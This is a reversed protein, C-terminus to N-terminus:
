ITPFERLQLKEPFQNINKTLKGNFEIQKVFVPIKRVKLMAALHTLHSINCCRRHSTTEVGMVVWHVGTFDPIFLQELLPEFSILRAVAPISQLTKIRNVVSQDEVSTGIIVNPAPIDRWYEGSTYYQFKMLLMKMRSPRKTLIIFRHYHCFAMMELADQIFEEPVKEHFLDNWISYVTPIDRSLPKQIDKEMCRIKCNFRMKNTLGEYRAKMKKSKKQFSRMYTARAAWCNLCGRSVPSCGEVLSWAEGWYLGRDIREKPILQKM